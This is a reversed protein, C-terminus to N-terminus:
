RSSLAGDIRPARISGVPPEGRTAILYRLNERNIVAHAVIPALLEGTALYLAGFVLGMATAMFTWSWLRRNWPIHVAGFLVSAGVIGAVAGLASVLGAQIGGRFFMEEGIASAIALPTVTGPSTGTLADRLELTMARGWRSVRGIWRTTAIGALGVALGAVLSVPLSIWRSGGLTTALHFPSCGVSLAGAWAISGLGGYIGAAAAVRGSSM